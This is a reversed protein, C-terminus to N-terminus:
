WGGSALWDDVEALRDNGWFPQGDVIFLPSGFVGAAIAGETEKRLRAKIAPDTLAADFSIPEIACQAAIESIVERSSIDRDQTFFAIYVARAFHKAKIPDSDTLFYFGRCATVSSIPFRSPMTIPINYRRASRAIDLRAYDGVLPRDPLPVSGTQKMVAGMLYPRWVVERDHSAAIQDIRLSALYGYPSSFDFYFDIPNAM